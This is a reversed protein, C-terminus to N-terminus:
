ILISLNIELYFGIKSVLLQLLYSHSDFIKNNSKNSLLSTMAMWMCIGISKLFSRHRTPSLRHPCSAVGWFM